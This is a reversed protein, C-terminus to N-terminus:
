HMSRQTRLQINKQHLHMHGHQIGETALARLASLNQALGVACIIGALETANPNGMLKLVAQATPHLKTVGGVTGVALPLKISGCLEGRSTKTWTTLPRYTGTQAAYAHAGAEVARWDNGTAIVVPDIGNMVGKNHTTARYVDHWAFRYAKVIRDVVEEGTFSSHAFASAPIVCDAWALRRDNLNTLIRLGIECDGFLAPLLGSVKECMTNVINAGMADATHVHLNVVLTEIEPISYWTLEQAGGGRSLLRRQGRNASALLEAKHATLTEAAEAHQENALYVQIQGTMVPDTAGASFGGGARALKAGHSAAALVSTEEVAMPILRDQGNIRFNTAVGLPLSFTGIANEIFTDALERSLAGFQKLDRAEADTLGSFRAAVDAREGTPLTYFGPLRSSNKPSQSM